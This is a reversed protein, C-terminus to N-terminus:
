CKGFEKPEGEREPEMQQDPVGKLSCCQWELREPLAMSYTYSIYVAEGHKEMSRWAEGSRRGAELESTADLELEAEAWYGEGFCRM